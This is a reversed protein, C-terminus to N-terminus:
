LRPEGQEDLLINDPKVDRNLSCSIPLHDLLGTRAKCDRAPRPVGELAGGWELCLGWLGLHAKLLQGRAVNQHLWTLSAIRIRTRPGPVGGADWRNLGSLGPLICQSM